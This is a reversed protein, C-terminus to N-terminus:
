VYKLIFKVVKDNNEETGVSKFIQPFNNINCYKHLLFAICFFGCYNSQNHQIKKKWYIFKKKKINKIFAIVNEDTPKKGYSDFYFLKDNQCYIAIFHEGPTESDGTNFILSFKKKEVNPQIDCPFVGLFSRGFLKKCIKEVYKNTLGASM